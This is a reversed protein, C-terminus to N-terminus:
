TNMMLENEYKLIVVFSNTSSIILWLHKIHGRGVTEVVVPFHLSGARDCREGEGALCQLYEFIAVFNVTTLCCYRPPTVCNGQFCGHFMVFDLGERTNSPLHIYIPGKFSGELVFSECKLHHLGQISVRCMHDIDRRLSRHRGSNADSRLNAGITSCVSNDGFNGWCDIDIM